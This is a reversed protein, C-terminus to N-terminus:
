LKRFTEVHLGEAEYIARLVVGDGIRDTSVLQELPASGLGDHYCDLAARKAAASADPSEIALVDGTVGRVGGDGIAKGPALSALRSTGAEFAWQRVCAGLGLVTPPLAAAVAEHMRVHDPHNTVGDPGVTIVVDATAATLVDKVARVVDVLPAHALSGPVGRPVLDQWPGVRSGVEVGLAACASAYADMRRPGLAEGASFTVLRVDCGHSAYTALTSGAFFSEDDPHAFLGM